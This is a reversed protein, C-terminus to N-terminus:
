EDDNQNTEDNSGEHVWHNCAGDEYMSCDHESDKEKEEAAFFNSIERLMEEIQNKSHVFGAIPFDMPENYMIKPNSTALFDHSM